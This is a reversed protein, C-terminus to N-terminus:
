GIWGLQREGCDPSRPQPRDGYDGPYSGSANETFVWQCYALDGGRHGELTCMLRSTRLNYLHVRHDARGIALFKSDRSLAIATAEGLGESITQICRWPGPNHACAPATQRAKPTPEAAPAQTQSTPETAKKPNTTEGLILAAKALDAEARREFGLLSNVYGRFRYAEGYYPNLRIAITFDAIAAEYLGDTVHAAGSEYYAEANTPKRTIKSVTSRQEGDSLNRNLVEHKLVEYAENIQKFREEAQQKLRPDNLFRDPHWQKALTRYAQKIEESSAGPKLGLTNYHNQLFSM